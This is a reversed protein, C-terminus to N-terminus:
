RSLGDVLGALATRLAPATHIIGISILAFQTLEGIMAGIVRGVMESGAASPYEWAFFIFPPVLLVLAPVIAWPTRLLLLVLVLAEAPAIIRSLYKLAQPKPPAPNWPGGPVRGNKPRGKLRAYIGLQMFLLDFSIFTILSWWIWSVELQWLGM